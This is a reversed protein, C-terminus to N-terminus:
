APFQGPPFSSPDVRTGAPIPTGNTEPLGLNRQIFNVIGWVSVMVFLAILGWKMINKGEEHSKEDSAKAIFKVLGWFFALLAISVVIPIVLDVLGKFDDILGRLGGFAAFSVLPTFSLLFLPLYKKM